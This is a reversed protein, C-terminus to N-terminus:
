AGLFDLALGTFRDPQQRHPLHGAGELIEIRGGPIGRALASGEQLAVLQDLEGHLVLTSAQIQGLRGQVNLTRLAEVQGQLGEFPQLHPNALCEGVISDLFEIHNFSDPPYMWLFIERTVAAPDGGKALLEVWADFLQMNRRSMSAATSCAILRRVREPRSAALELAVAGGLSHGLVHAADLHLHDLVCVCDEAMEVVDYPPPPCESRGSGRNDLLVVFFKEALMKDVVPWSGGDCGLGPVLLLPEGRGMTEYHLKVGHNYAEPM